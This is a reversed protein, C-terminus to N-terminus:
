GNGRSLGGCSVGSGTRGTEEAEAFEADVLGGLLAAVDAVLREVPEDPFVEGLTEGIERASGPIDLMAWVAAAVANLRWIATGEPRWLFASGGLRRVTVGHARAVVADPDMPAGDEARSPAPEPPTGGSLCAALGEATGFARRLLAVAEELDSYVLTVATLGEVLTRGRAFAADPTEQEAMNRTLLETLASDTELRFLQAPGEARRALRVLVSLRAQTGHPAVSPACVFGYRRDRPGLTAQVHDRFVASSGEPLPLRLRPAVGLGVALGEPTVPLIDDCYVEVGPEATLRAILTSKGARPPGSVAVLRGGIRFAGCHLALTGPREDFYAQGLDAVLACIASAPELARFPAEAFVSHVAFGEDGPSEAYVCSLARGQPQAVEEIVPEWGRLVQALGEELGTGAQMVVPRSLGAYRMMRWGPGKALDPRAGARAGRRATTM